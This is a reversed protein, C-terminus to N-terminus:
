RIHKLKVFLVIAKRDELSPMPAVAYRAPKSRVSLDDEILLDKAGRTNAFATLVTANTSPSYPNFDDIPNPALIIVLTEEGPNEDFIMYRDNPITYVKNAEIFNDISSSHPYLVRTAGTSGVNIVYLYGDRNSKLSLKIRDGSRFEKNVPKRMVRGDRTLLDIWYSVGMYYVKEQKKVPKQKDDAKRTPAIVSGEGSHFLAKAGKVEAYSSSLSLLIILFTTLLFKM